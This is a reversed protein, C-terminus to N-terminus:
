VIKVRMKNGFGWTDQRTNCDTTVDSLIPESKEFALSTFGENKGPQLSRTSVYYNWDPRKKDGIIVTVWQGVRNHRSGYLLYLFYKTTGQSIFFTPVLRSIIYAVEMRVGSSATRAPSHGVTLTQIALITAKPDVIRTAASEGELVDSDMYPSMETPLAEWHLTHVMSQLQIGSSREWMMKCQSQQWALLCGELAMASTDPNSLLQVALAWLSLNSNFQWRSLRWLSFGELITKALRRITAKM